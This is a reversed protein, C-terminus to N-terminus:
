AFPVIKKLPSCTEAKEEFVYCEDNYEFIQNKVKNLPPGRFKLCSRENCAKRFLTALGLVLLIAIIFKGYKSYIIRRIKM